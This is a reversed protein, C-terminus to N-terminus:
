RVDGSLGGSNVHCHIKKFYWRASDISGGWWQFRLGTSDGVEIAEKMTIHNKAIADELMDDEFTARHICEALTSVPAKGEAKVRM